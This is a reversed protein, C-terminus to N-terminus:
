IKQLLFFLIAWEFIGGIVGIVILIVEIIGGLISIM